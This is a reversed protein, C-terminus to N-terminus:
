KKLEIRNRGEKKAQYLSEDAEQVLKDTTDIDDDPVGAIGISVTKRTGQLGAFAHAEVAALIRRAPLLAETKKTMPALLIFEEGGWRCVSDSDRICDQIIRAVDRIVTDGIAHGYSDNVSKFHDIDIMMCTLPLHYRRAKKFELELVEQFRRRNFLGTLPDTMSITEMRALMQKLEGNKQKLEDRLLKTRLSARVRAQLEIDEFPKSLYDDAGAELGKVKEETADIATLMIIPVDRTEADRKLLNCIKIGDTDPLVRDLLIVDLPQTKAIRIASMGETIWLVDYGHRELFNKMEEGFMENDDVILIRGKSTKKSRPAVPLDVVLNKLNRM